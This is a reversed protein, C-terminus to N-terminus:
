NCSDDQSSDRDCNGPGNDLSCEAVDDSSDCTYYSGNLCCSGSFSSSSGGGDDDGCAIISVFTLMAMVVLSINLITHKM